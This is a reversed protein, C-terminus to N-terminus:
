APNTQSPTAISKTVQSQDFYGRNSSPINAQVVAGPDYCQLVVKAVEFPQAMVTSTYSYITRDVLKKAMDAVSPSADPLYDGYDLDSLLDRFDRNSSSGMRKPILPPSAPGTLNPNPEPLGISPPKYYPRLPNPGDTSASMRTFSPFNSDDSRDM